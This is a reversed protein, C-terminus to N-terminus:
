FKDEGLRSFFILSSLTYATLIFTGKSAILDCHNLVIMEAVSIFSHVLLYTCKRKVMPKFSEVIALFLISEVISSIVVIRIWLKTSAHTIKAAFYGITAGSAIRVPIQSITPALSPLFTM